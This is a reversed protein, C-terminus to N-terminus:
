CVGAPNGGSVPPHAATQQERWRRIARAHVPYHGYTDLRLRQRFRTEGIVHKEPVKHLYDILRQHTAEQQRFVQRLSLGAKKSTMLANFADIGGYLAAYRPPRKGEAIAPLHKLAEQEWTTVHAIIDRVSWPGTVGPQRLQAESLGDYSDRFARWAKDIRQLLQERKM